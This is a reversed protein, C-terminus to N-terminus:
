LQRLGEDTLQYECEHDIIKAYGFEVAARPVAHGFLRVLEVNGFKYKNDPQDALFRLFPLIPLM